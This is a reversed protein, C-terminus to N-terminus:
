ESGVAWASAARLFAFQIRAATRIGSVRSVSAAMAM